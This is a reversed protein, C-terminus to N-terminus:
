PSAPWGLPQQSGGQWSSPQQLDLLSPVIHTTSAAVSAPRGFRCPSAALQQRPGAVSVSLMGPTSAAQLAGDVIAALLAPTGQQRQQGQGTAAAANRGPVNGATSPTYNYDAIGNSSWFRESTLACDEPAADPSLLLDRVSDAGVCSSFFSKAGLGDVWQYLTSESVDFSCPSWSREAMAGPMREIAKVSSVITSLPRRRRSLM